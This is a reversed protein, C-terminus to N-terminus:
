KKIIYNIIILTNTSFGSYAIFEHFNNVKLKQILVAFSFIILLNFLKYTKLNIYIINQNFLFTIFIYNLLLTILSYIIIIDFTLYKYIEIKLFHFGPLALKIMFSVIIFYVEWHSTVTLYKLETFNLTGYYYIIFYMGILFLITSFFNNFLYLLLMNKYQLININKEKNYVIFFFYFIISYLEIYIFFIVLSNILNFLVLFFCINFLLFHYNPSIDDKIFYIFLFYFFIISLIYNDVYDVKLSFFHLFIFILYIYFINKVNINKITKKSYNILFNKTNKFISYFIILNFIEVYIYTFLLIISWFSYNLNIM